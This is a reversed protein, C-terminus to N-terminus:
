VRRQGREGATRLSWRCSLRREATSAGGLRDSPMSTQRPSARQCKLGVALVVRGGLAGRVPRRVQALPNEGVPRFAWAVWRYSLCHVIGQSEDIENGGGRGQRLNGKGVIALDVEEPTPITQEDVNPKNAVAHHVVVDRVFGFADIHVSGDNEATPRQRSINLPCHRTSKAGSESRAGMSGIPSHLSSLSCCLEYEGPVTPSSSRKALNM